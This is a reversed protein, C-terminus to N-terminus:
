LFSFLIGVIYDKSWVKLSAITVDGHKVDLTNAGLKEPTYTMDAYEDAPESILKLPINHGEVDTLTYSLQSIPYREM